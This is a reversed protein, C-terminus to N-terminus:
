LESPNGATDTGPGIERIDEGIDGYINIQVGSFFSIDLGTEVVQQCFEFATKGGAATTYHNMMLTHVIMRKM